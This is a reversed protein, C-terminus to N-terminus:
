SSTAPTVEVGAKECFKVLWEKSPGTPGYFQKATGRFFTLKTKEASSDIIAGLADDFDLGSVNTTGVVILQDGPQLIGNKAAVGDEKLSQVFIGGYESDNEEFIIGMPKELEVAMYYSEDMSDIFDAAVKSGGEANAGNGEQDSVVSWGMWRDIPTERSSDIQSRELAPASFAEKVGDFLGNLATSTATKSMTTSTPLATQQKSPLVAFGSVTTSATFLLAM